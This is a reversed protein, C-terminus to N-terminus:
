GHPAPAAPAPPAGAGEAPPQAKPARSARGLLRRTAITVLRPIRADLDHAAEFAHVVHSLILLNIGDLRDLEAQAHKTAGTRAAAARATTRVAKGAAELSDVYASSLRALKARSALPGKKQGLVERAISVLRDIGSALAEGDEATAHTGEIKAALKVDGSAVVALATRAQDRLLLAHKFAAGAEADRTARESKSTKGESDGAAAADRLAKAQSVGLSLLEPSFGILLARQSEDLANWVDFAQAYIRTADTVVRSSAIMAGRVVLDSGDVDALLDALLHADVAPLHKQLDELSHTSSITEESKKSM